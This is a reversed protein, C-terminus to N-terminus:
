LRSESRRRSRRVRTTSARATGQTFSCDMHTPRRRDPCSQVDGFENHERGRRLHRLGPCTRPRFGPGGAGRSTRSRRRMAKIGTIRPTTWDRMSRAHCHEIFGTPLGVPEVVAGGATLRHVDTPGAVAAIHVAGPRTCRHSAGLRQTAGCRAVLATPAAGCPVGGALAGPPCASYLFHRMLTGKGHRDSACQEGTYGFRPPRKLM